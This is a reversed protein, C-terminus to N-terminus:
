YDEERNALDELERKRGELIYWKERYEQESLEGRNFSKELRSKEMELEGIRKEIDAGKEPATDFEGQQTQDQGGSEEYEYDETEEEAGTDISERTIISKYHEPSRLGELVIESIDSGASNVKLTGVGFIREMFNKDLHTDTVDDYAITKVDKSLIGVEEVVKRDTFYYAVFYRRIETVLLVLLFIAGFFGAFLWRGPGVVSSVVSTFGSVVGLALFVMSIIYWKLYRSDFRSPSSSEVIEEGAELLKNISAM